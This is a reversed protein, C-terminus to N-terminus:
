SKFRKTISAAALFGGTWANQFNFGGTVGDIDLVEGVAYLGPHLRSEMTRFDVDGRHIGGATVFEEKFIGRGNVPLSDQTLTKLLKGLAERSLHGYTLDALGPTKTVLYEWLSRPLALPPHTIVKRKPHKEKTALLIERLESEALPHVWCILLEARYGQQFLERAAFASLRLVGPGSLGWHTVLLPGTAAFVRSAPPATEDGSGVGEIRLQLHPKFSEGVSVGSLRVLAPDDVKFTFLSPVPDVIRHGLQRALAQGRPSSGTALVVVPAIVSSGSALRLLFLGHDKKEILTVVAQKRVEIPAKQAEHLFCDIITQSTNSEPFMRGDKEVKLLVGRKAFWAVTDRPGFRHFPGLLEKSGRPYNKVLKAADFEHHTVNCRGGGSIKVKTLVQNTAELILIKARPLQAASELATFFGAPGGGIVVIDFSEPELVVSKKDDAIGDETAFSVQPPVSTIETSM